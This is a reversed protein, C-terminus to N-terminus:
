ILYEVAERMKGKNNEMQQYARNGAYLCDGQIDNTLFQRKPKPPPNSWINTVKVKEPSITHEKIMTPLLLYSEESSLDSSVGLSSLSHHDTNAM